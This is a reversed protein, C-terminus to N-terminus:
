RSGTSRLIYRGLRRCFVLTLKSFQVQVLPYSVAWFSLPNTGYPACPATTYSVLEQEVTQINSAPRQVHMTPLRYRSALKTSAVAIPRNSPQSGRLQQLQNPQLSRPVEPEAEAM